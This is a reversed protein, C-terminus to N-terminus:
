IGCGKGHRAHMNMSLERNQHAIWEVKAVNRFLFCRAPGRNGFPRRRAHSRRRRVKLVQVLRLAFGHLRKIAGHEHQRAGAGALRPHQGRPQRMQEVGAAGPRALNQRHGEGVLGGALHLLADACQDAARHLAHLPEAGEVRQAGLNQAAMRLKGPQSGVESNQVRVVLDAQHFLHDLGGADVLLAPGGALQCAENVAPLVLRKAGVLHGLTLAKGEGVALARFEVGGILLAEFREVRDIEAVEQHFVQADELLVRLHQLIELVAEFVDQHVFVLVGVHRLIQPQPQQCAPVLVNAAHAIVVLRDIAPAAGLHVVDQFEFRIEGAGLDDAEFLVVPRRRMDQLRGGAEDGGILAAEALGQPRLHVLALLNGDLAHPIALFFGAGDALVDLLELALVVAQALDGDEHAGGELHAFEFVAKDIEAQGIADDAARAKVLAHFDAVGVGIEAEDRLGIIVQRKLADDVLGLAPQAIHRHLGQM